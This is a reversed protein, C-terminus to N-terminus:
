VVLWNSRPAALKNFRTRRRHPHKSVFMLSQWSQTEWFEPPASDKSLVIFEDLIIDPDFYEGGKLTNFREEMIYLDEEDGYELVTDVCEEWIEQERREEAAEDWKAVVHRMGRFYLNGRCMPCTPHDECKQYWEKVCTHCFDHGCVLHCKATSTYCVSCEMEQSPKGKCKM